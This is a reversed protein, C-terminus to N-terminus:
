QAGLRIEGSIRSASYMHDLVELIGRSDVSIVRGTTESYLYPNALLGLNGDFLVGVIELERNLVPSGSNGSWIDGTTVFNMPASLDMAPPPNLWRDPLSWDRSLDRYSYYHDYLGFFTTYAPVKIGHDIYGLVRGDALRLSSSGDPPTDRGDVAFKLQALRAKLLAERNDFSQTQDWATLVLPALVEILPVSADGSNLYSATLLTDLGTTDALSTQAVVRAAVSDVPMGGTIRRYSPDTEGLADAMDELRLALLATEAEVPLSTFAMAEQRIEDFQEESTYGRRKLTAYIYAYFARALVRSGLDSGFYTFVHSRGIAARKSIQLEGLDVFVNEYLASLSDSAAVAQKMRSENAQRQAILNGEQLGALQGRIKKLGNSLSFYMNSGKADDRFRELVKVRKELWAIDLPLAYDREYELAAVSSLRNTPAPNGVVFIAEGEQTGDDSWRYYDDTVLPRGDPGYIRLFAVDLAYRPYTHNDSDGGFFALQEEPAMVLRVDSYRRLTYAAYRSGSFLSVVEVRLTSDEASVRRTMQEAINEARASRARIQENDGRVRRSAAHVSATVDEIRILQEAYLGKVKREDSFETAVFGDQVLHEGEQTTKLLSSRACHHATMVLGQPSVFSASCGDSLRLAGAMAKAIWVSDPRLNYEEEFYDLPLHDFTWMKGDAFRHSAAVVATTDQRTESPTVPLSTDTRAARQTVM